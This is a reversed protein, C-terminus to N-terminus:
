RSSRKKPYKKLLDSYVKTLVDLKATDYPRLVATCEEYDLWGMNRVEGMQVKNTTDVTPPGTRSNNRVLYYVHRYDVENTGRFEEVIPNYDEIFSYMSKDYGTEEFFERQACTLNSEKLNRRGKPFGFEQFIYDGVSNFVLNPIDLSQFKRKANEYEHKFCKSNHNVWLNGWITDFNQYLLNDKEGRTMENFLIAIKKMKQPGNCYKGRVFDIYGMTDKRQIMLFKIRPYSYIKKSKGSLEQLIEKMISNTDLPDEEDICRVVKFAIIGFSTIPSRCEKVLHGYQGCNVCSVNQVKNRNEHLYRPYSRKKNSGTAHLLPLRPPSSIPSIRRKIYLDPDLVIYHYNENNNSDM